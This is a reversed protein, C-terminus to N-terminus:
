PKYGAMGPLPLSVGEMTRPGVSVAAEIGPEIGGRRLEPARKYVGM